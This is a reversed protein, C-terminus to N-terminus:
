PGSNRNIVFPNGIVFPLYRVEGSNDGRGFGDLALWHACRFMAREGADDM